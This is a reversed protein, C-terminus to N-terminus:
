GLSLASNADVLIKADLPVGLGVGVKGNLDMGVKVKTKIIGGSLSVDNQDNANVLANERTELQIVPSMVYRGNGTAHMSESAIFDFNATATSNARVLIEGDIKIEGSPMKAESEGKADTVMVKSVELRIQNYSGEKIQADALLASRSSANLALLDYTAPTSSLSVWGETASHVKVSDVTIKVSTVAGMEAAADSITSVIRGNVESSAGSNAAGSHILGGSSISLVADAPIALGSGLSGKLDMGVKISTRVLGGKIEIKDGNKVQVDAHERTEVKMVPAMVYEGNGTVHLSEDAIVDFTASSTSQSRVVLDGTVKLQNSPLRAQHEGKNDIIVVNSVDLRLQDYTGEKLQADAILVQSGEAKLQLLDVTKTASSVTVWGETASHVKVSDVTVKVSSVSGMNAAADTFGFVGRGYGAQGTPSPSSGGNVSAQGSCGALLLGGCVMLFVFFLNKM